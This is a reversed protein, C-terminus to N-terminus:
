SMELIAQALIAAGYLLADEDIDFDPQHLYTGRGDSAGLQFYCSPVEQSWIAFDDGSLLPGITLVAEEGLLHAAANGVRRCVDRDNVIPPVKREIRTDVSVGYILEIGDGVHPLENLLRERALSSLTRIDGKLRVEAPVSNRAEGGDIVGIGVNRCERPDMRRNLYSNLEMILAAAATIPDRGLHPAATHSAKGKITIDLHDISAKMSGCCIGVTRPPLRPDVHCALAVDYHLGKLADSDLMAKAGEDTEEAPQFAFIVESDFGGKVDQLIRIVGLAIAVHADHGCAHMIGKNRSAYDRDRTEHIPLADMDARLLIKRKSDSENLTAILGTGGVGAIAELGAEELNKAIYAATEREQFALEPNQHIKRRIERMHAFHGEAISLVHDCTM